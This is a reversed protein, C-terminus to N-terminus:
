GKKGQVPVLKLPGWVGLKEGLIILIGKVGNIQKGWQIAKEIDGGCGVQNGIATAAADALACSSSVVCVADAKGLSLSHGITGSSTCVATPLAGGGVRIGIKLSLPSAGAFIAITVPELTKIFVDGGNEVIVEKSQALLDEGVHAAICGAVSAMPGVGAAQGAATMEQILKPLPGTHRWPVMVTLFDPHMQIFKELVSRHFLIRDRVHDELNKDAQIQLDTEKVVVRFSVLVTREFVTVTTM